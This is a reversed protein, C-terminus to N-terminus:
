GVAVKRRDFVPVAQGDHLLAQVLSLGSVRMPSSAPLSPVIPFPVKWEIRRIVTLVVIAICGRFEGGWTSEKPGMIIM